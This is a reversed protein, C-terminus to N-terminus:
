GQLKRKLLSRWGLRWIQDKIKQQNKQFNSWSAQCQFTERIKGRKGGLVLSLWALTIKENERETKLTIRSAIRNFCDLSIINLIGM